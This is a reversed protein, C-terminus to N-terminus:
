GQVAIGLPTVFLCDNPKVTPIHLINTFVQEFEQFSCAGGVVYINHVEKDKIFAKVISAMKEIVPKVIPFVDAEKSKDLKMIEAAAFSINHYGALTLTMHTGGTPEDATYIVKKNHLISIGTTGGGIDVVAGETIGLLGAAATPEDVVQKVTFGGREVCNAICRINGEIIGPPIATAATSLEVGLKIELAKKMAEVKQAAGMFDVVVGDRVAKSAMSMGAVPKNNKDVVAVVINATGLDVGVKLPTTAAKVEGTRVLRSFEALDENFLM